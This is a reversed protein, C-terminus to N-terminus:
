KLIQPITPVTHHEWWESGDYEARTSWSGDKYWITGFLEQSGYGPDFEFDIKNLFEDISGGIELTHENIIACHVDKGQIHTLFNEKANM